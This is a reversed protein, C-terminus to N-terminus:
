RPSSQDVSRSGARDARLRPRQHHVDASTPPSSILRVTVHAHALCRPCREIALWQVPAQHEIRM